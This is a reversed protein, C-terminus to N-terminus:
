KFLFNYIEIETAYFKNDSYYGNINIHQDIELDEKSAEKTEVKNGNVDYIDKRTYKTTENIYVTQLDPNEVSVVAISKGDGLDETEIKNITISSDDFATINGCMDSEDGAGDKIQEEDSENDFGAKFQEEDFKGDSSIEVQENDSFDIKPGNSSDSLYSKTSQKKIGFMIGFYDVALYGAVIFGIISLIITVVYRQTEKKYTITKMGMFFLFGLAVGLLNLIIDDIDGSGLYLFYQCIEFFLSVFLGALAVNKWKSCKEYLLPLFYGFPAFVFVNGVINNFGRFFNGSFMMKTFECISQFPIISYSHFGKLEGAFLQDFTTILGKYKFLVIKILFIFYVIFIIHCCIIFFKNKSEYEHRMARAAKQSTRM